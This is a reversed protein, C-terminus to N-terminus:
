MAYKRVFGNAYRLCKDRNYRGYQVMQTRTCYDYLQDFKEWERADKAQMESVVTVLKSGAMLLLVILVAKWINKFIVDLIKWSQWAAAVGIFDRTNAKIDIKTQTTM